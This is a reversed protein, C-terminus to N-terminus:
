SLIKWVLQQFNKYLLNRKRTRLHFDFADRRNILNYLVHLQINLITSNTKEDDLFIFLM